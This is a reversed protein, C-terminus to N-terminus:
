YDSEATRHWGSNAKEPNGSMNHLFVAWWGGGARRDSDLDSVRRSHTIEPTGRDYSVAGGGQVVM